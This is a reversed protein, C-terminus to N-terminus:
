PTQDTDVASRVAAGDEDLMPSRPVDAMHSRGFRVPQRIYEVRGATPHEFSRRLERAAVHESELAQQLSWIPAAALGAASLAEVVDDVSRSSTWAEIISKIAEENETRAADVVFRPDTALDPDGIVSALKRFGAESAVAIVVLGDRARFTDFPTSVPHRNGVRTPDLGAQVQSFATVELSLLSDLMAVDLHQGLDSSQREVLAACIGWAAFLGAVLDGFSEGIRTPPGDPFGTTSMIGSLAQVILDYAANNSMPGIQGFGSISAYVLRPNVKALTPYDLGLRATVGPRFNEVLVDASRVMGLFIERDRPDKLDLAVSRKGRNIVHFYVSETGKFPGLHRADDGGPAEIKLVDAGIEALLAGCYPGALVRSLDLVRVGRLAGTSRADREGGAWLSSEDDSM